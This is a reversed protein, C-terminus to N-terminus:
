IADIGNGLALLDGLGERQQLRLAAVRNEAERQPALFAATTRARAEALLRPMREVVVAPDIDAGRCLRDRVLPEAAGGYSVCLSPLTPEPLGHIGIAADAFRRDRGLDDVAVRDFWPLLAAIAAAVLGAEVWRPWAVLTRRSLPLATESAISHPLSPDKTRSAHRLRVQVVAATRHPANEAAGRRRECDRGCERRSERRSQWRDELQKDAM